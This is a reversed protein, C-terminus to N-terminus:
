EEFYWVNSGFEDRPNKQSVSAKETHALSTEELKLGDNGIDDKVSAKEQNNTAEAETKKLKLLDVVGQLALDPDESRMMAEAVEAPTVQVNEILGEIEELLRCNDFEGLYRSALIRFSEYSCYSMHIHMDMRGPRLLAPDIKDKHNTTFIIVREEGCSSWLGDAFNLMGSLSLQPPKYHDEEKGSRPFKTYPLRKQLNASCDIDEIVIISRNSTSLLMRRLESDSHLSTLEIDYVDFKLYNAIAAILSSKGTGPPGYLLYGRKWAKGVRRYFERRRLFKDLDQIISKKLDYDMAMTDFTAPHDLIVCGWGGPGHGGHERSTLSKTYLKVAKNSEDTVKAVSLVHPLYENMVLDKFNKDFSLHFVIKEKGNKQPDVNQSVVEWTLDVLKFKDEVKQDKEITLSFNKQKAIKGVKLKDINPGIINGLYVEAAEYIENRVLGVQPEIVLTLKKTKIPLFNRFLYTIISLLYARLPRPILQDVMTRILMISGTLSAYTTFLSTATPSQMMAQM